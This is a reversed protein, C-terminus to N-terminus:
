NKFRFVNITILVDLAVLIMALLLFYLYKNSSVDMKKVDRTEGKIAAIDNIMKEVENVKDNVEYYSGNTKLALQTLGDRNLKSIVENGSRDRKYGRGKPIKSGKTTGIGLTFLKINESKIQDAASQADESFDEGDSILIIVKSTPKTLKDEDLHKELSMELPATLDTGANPVLGTNLTEIFMNLAKHDYTIPCQVFAESSFIVLGIREAQFNRVIRKLEFKLKEIRSPQIDTANMSYSLDVAIYIDKAITKVEQEKKGFSPGLIAIIILTFYGARLIFKPLTLLLGGNLVKSGRYIRIFYLLYFVAFGILAIIIYFDVDRTWTM